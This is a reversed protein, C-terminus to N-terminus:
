NEDLRRVVVGPYTLRWDSTALFRDLRERILGSDYRRNSWTFGSGVMVLDVLHGYNIFEVFADISSQSKESGGEKENFSTIVNFDGTLIIHGRVGQIYELVEEFHNKRIQEQSHFYVGILM